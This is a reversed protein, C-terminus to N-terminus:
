LAWVAAQAQTMNIVCVWLAQAWMSAHVVDPAGLTFTTMDHTMLHPSNNPHAESNSWPKFQCLNLLAIISPPLFVQKEQQGSVSYQQIKVLSRLTYYCLTFEKQVGHVKYTSSSTGSSGLRSIFCPISFICIQATVIHTHSISYTTMDLILNFFVVLCTMEIVVSYCQYSAVFFEYFPQM